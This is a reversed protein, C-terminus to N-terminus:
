VEVSSTLLMWGDMWLLIYIYVRTLKHIERGLNEKLLLM